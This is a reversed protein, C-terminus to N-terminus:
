AVDYRLRLRDTLLACFDQLERKNQVAGTAAGFHLWSNWPRLGYVTVTVGSSPCGAVQKLDNLIMAALEEAPKQEKVPARRQLDPFAPDSTSPIAPPQPQPLESLPAPQNEQNVIQPGRGIRRLRSHPRLVINSM